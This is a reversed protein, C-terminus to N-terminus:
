GLAGDRDQGQDPYGCKGGDAKQSLWWPANPQATPKVDGKDIEGMEEGTSFAKRGKLKM